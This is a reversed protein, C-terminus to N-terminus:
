CSCVDSLAQKRIKQPFQVTHNNVETQAILLKSSMSGYMTSAGMSVGTTGKM